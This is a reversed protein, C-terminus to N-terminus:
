KAFGPFCVSVQIAIIVTDNKVPGFVDENFIFQDRNLDAITKLVSEVEIPAPKLTVESIQEGVFNNSFPDVEDEKEEEKEEVKGMVNPPSSIKKLWGFGPFKHYGHDEYQGALSKASQQEATWLTSNSLQIALQVLFFGLTACIVLVKIIRHKRRRMM